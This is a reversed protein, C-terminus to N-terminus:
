VILRPAIPSGNASTAIFDRPNGAQGGFNQDIQGESFTHRRGETFKYPM